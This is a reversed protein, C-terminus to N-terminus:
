GLLNGYPLFRNETNAKIWSTLEKDPFADRTKLIKCIWIVPNKDGAVWDIWRNEALTFFRCLSKLEDNDFGSLAPEWVQKKAKIVSLLEQVEEPASTPFTDPEILNLAYKLAANSIGKNADNPEWSGTTM